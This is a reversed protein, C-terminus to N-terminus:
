KVAGGADKEVVERPLLLEKGSRALYPPVTMLARRGACGVFKWLRGDQGEPVAVRFYGPKKMDVFSFAKRGAGDLLTGTTSDAFGGVVRTGKPVYFTLSWRGPLNFPDDMGARMTGALDDPWRVETGATGDTWQLTHLGEHPTKLSVTHPQRDPLVSEDRAVPELVAEAAASLSIKVAGRDTYIRGSTVTLDVQKRGKPVWLYFRQNGRMAPWPAAETVADPLGLPTAPVLTESFTVPSFDIVAPQNAEIGAALIDAIEKDSFAQSSKWPNKPEPVNYAADTPVTLSKDRGPLDLYVEKTHVMLRDKMRWAHRVVAEFAKQRAEGKASAYVHFLEVYRTYLVLDDLRRLVAANGAAQGAPALTRAEALDRYMRAAVDEASRVTRDRNVLTYFRRMPAAAAGFAKTVFDEVLADVRGAEKVNWLLRPTMWYGLGNAGWSDSAESNMFRAGQQHFEPITRALYELNGGRADRPLDHSWTFVDHYERMGLTAGRARWGTVLQEVTYGGKIFSTAVSVIVNPHVRVAPPPSHQSYAYIGIYKAGLGLRNVAEAAEGALRVVRDSVSGMAACEPCECWHGGDSPDLSLSDMEPKERFARVAHEVVLRRLGPNAICFKADGGVDKREGGILALYEPHAKFEKSNAKVIGGYSHGTSLTFASDVRNRHRWRKWLDRSYPDTSGPGRPASRNLYDPKEAADLAIALEPRSPVVEWTDTPFFLRYGLRDLFDWVAREVAADTAGVIWIGGAHTRLLYEERRFPDKPAFTVGLALAPFDAATGVAVGRTGDGIAVEFKAGAIRGLMEALEAAAAKVAPSATASTVIPMLAKGGSALKAEVPAAAGAANVVSPVSLVSFLIAVALPMFLRTRM